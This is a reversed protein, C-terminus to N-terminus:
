AERTAVLTGALALNGLGLLLISVELLRPHLTSLAGGLMLLPIFGLGLALPVWRWPAARVRDRAVIGLAVLAVLTGITAFSHSIVSLATEPPDGAHLAHRGVNLLSFAFALVAAVLGVRAHRSALGLAIALAVLAVALFLQGLM